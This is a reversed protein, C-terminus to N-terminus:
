LSGATGMDAEVQKTVGDKNLQFLIRSIMNLVEPAEARGVYGDSIFEALMAVEDDFRCFGQHEEFWRKLVRAEATDIRSDQLVGKTLLWFEDHLEKQTMM